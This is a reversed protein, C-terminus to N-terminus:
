PARVAHHHAREQHGRRHMRPGAHASADALYHVDQAAYAMLSPTVSEVTWRSDAERAAAGRKAGADTNV